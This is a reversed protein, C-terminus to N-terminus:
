ALKLQTQEQQAPSLPVALLSALAILGWVVNWSSISLVLPILLPTFFASSFVTTGEMGIATGARGAGAMAAIETYAVGHWANALIGSVSVLALVLLTPAQNAFVLGLTALGALLGIGRIVSRRNKHKDTYRGSWVRLVAGGVQVIILTTSLTAIGVQREDHLYIGAFTLIAIQPATLLGSALALRWVDLRRLPSRPDVAGSAAPAVEAEHLWIWTAIASALCFLALVAYVTTFGYHQALRPLIAAGIAGGVPIATQRISMAFGRRADTFWTMIARGSSSNVSAGLAGVLIFSIGLVTASPAGHETPVVFASMIALMSGMLLLGALLVRRDGLKDTLLGWLIESVGVGLAMCGLVFGLQNNSLHYGTRMLIGIVPIGSFAASFSAQAAFGVGLVTWRHNPGFRRAGTEPAQRSQTM